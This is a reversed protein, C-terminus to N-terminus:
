ICVPCVFLCVCVFMFRTNIIFIHNEKLEKIDPTRLSNKHPAARSFNRRDRPGGLNINIHTDSITVNSLFMNHFRLICFISPSIIIPKGIYLIM